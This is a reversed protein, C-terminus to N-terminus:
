LWTNEPQKTRSPSPPKGSKRQETFPVYQFQKMNRLEATSMYPQIMQPEQLNKESPLVPATHSPNHYQSFDNHSQVYQSTSRPERARGASFPRQSRRSVSKQEQHSSHQPPRQASTSSSLHDYDESEYTHGAPVTNYGNTHMAPVEAPVETVTPVNQNGSSRRKKIVATSYHTSDPIGVTRLNPNSAYVRTGFARDVNVHPQPQQSTRGVSNSVASGRSSGYATRGQEPLATGLKIVPQSSPSRQRSLPPAPPRRHHVSSAASSSGQSGTSYKHHPQQQPLRQASTSLPAEQFKNQYSTTSLASVAPSFNSTAINSSGLSGQRRHQQPYQPHHPPTPSRSPPSLSNSRNHGMQHPPSPSKPPSPTAITTPSHPRVQSITSLPLSHQRSHGATTSVQALMPVNNIASDLSGQHSHSSTSNNESPSLEIVPGLALRNFKPSFKQEIEAVAQNASERLRKRLEQMESRIDGVPANRRRSSSVDPSSAHVRSNRPSVSIPSGKQSKKKPLPPLGMGVSTLRDTSQSKVATDALGVPKSQGDDEAGVSQWLMSNVKTMQDTGFFSMLVDDDNKSKDTALSSPAPEKLDFTNVKTVKPQETALSSPAPEKLDFASVETVKPQETALSSPDPEKLNFTNVKTMQDTGFFSKLIDDDTKPKDTALYSPAPDTLDFSYGSLRNVVISPLVPSAPSEPRPEEAESPRWSRRRLSSSSSAYLYKGEVEIQKRHADRIEHIGTRVKWLDQLIDKDCNRLNLQLFFYFVRTILNATHM